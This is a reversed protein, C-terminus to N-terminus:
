PWDSIRALLRRPHNSIDQHVGYRLLSHSQVKNAFNIGPQTTVAAQYHKAVEKVAEPCSDGNPYCFLNVPKELKSELLNKSATIEQYRIDADLDSRLRIHHCTHSGIDFLPDDSIQRLQQWNMLAPLSPTPLQLSSEAEDLWEIIQNDAYKKLSYIASASTESNVPADNALESLWPFIERQRQPLQLLRVLRNPWFEQHTGIMNSVAFLTAPINLKSLIPFAYEFNDLWGDDFTIACAKEPLPQCNIHRNVWDQLSVLTFENQLLKLHMEFTEPEVIMGPEEQAHRADSPPLIRHYMMIWLRPSKNSRRHHGFHAACVELPFKITNKVIQKISM